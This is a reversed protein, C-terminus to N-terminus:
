ISVYIRYKRNEKFSNHCAMHCISPFGKLSDPDIQKASLPNACIPTRGGHCSDVCGNYNNKTKKTRRTKTTTVRRRTTTPKRTTSATPNLNINTISGSPAAVRIRLSPFKSFDNKLPRGNSDCPIDTKGFPTSSYPIRTPWNPPFTSASDPQFTSLTTQPTTLEPRWSSVDRQFTTQETRFSTRDPQFSTVETRFPTSDTRLYTPDTRFTSTQTSFTSEIPFSSPRASPTQQATPVPFNQINQPAQQYILFYNPPNQQSNNPQPQQPQPMMPYLFPNIEMPDRQTTPMQTQTSFQSQTWQPLTSQRTPQTDFTTDTPFSSQTSSVYDFTSATSSFPSSGTQASTPYSELPSSTSSPLIVIPNSTSFIESIPKPSFEGNGNIVNASYWSGTLEARCLQLM